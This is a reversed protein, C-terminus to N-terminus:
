KFRNLHKQDINNNQIEILTTIVPNKVENSVDNKRRSAIERAREAAILVLHFSNGGVAEVCKEIDVLSNRSPQM